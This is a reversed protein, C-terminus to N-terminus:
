MPQWEIAAEMSFESPAAMSNTFFSMKPLIIQSMRLVGVPFLIGTQLVLIIAQHTKQKCSYMPSHLPLCELQQIQSTIGNAGCIQIGRRVKKSSESQLFSLMGTVPLCQEAVYFYYKLIVSQLTKFFKCHFIDKRIFFIM